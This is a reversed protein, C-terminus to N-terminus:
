ATAGGTELVQLLRWLWTELGLEDMLKVNALVWADSSVTSEHKGMLRNSIVIARDPCIITYTPNDLPETSLSRLLENLWDAAGMEHNILGINNLVWDEKAVEVKDQEFFRNAFSIAYFPNILIDAADDESAQRMGNTYRVHKLALFQENM